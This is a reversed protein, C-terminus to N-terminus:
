GVPIEQRYFLQTQVASLFRQNLYGRSAVCSRSKTSITFRVSKEDIHVRDQRRLCPIIPENIM